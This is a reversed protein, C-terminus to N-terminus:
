RSNRDTKRRSKSRIGNRKGHHHHVARRGHSRELVTLGNTSAVYLSAGNPHFTLRMEGGIKGKESQLDYLVKGTSFDWLTVKGQGGNAGALIKGNSSIAVAYFQGPITRQLKGTATSWLKIGDECASAITKGNPSFATSMVVNRHGRLTIAGPGSIVKRLMVERKFGGGYLPSGSASALLKGDPSFQVSSVTARHGTLSTRERGTEVDWLKVEGPNGEFLLTEGGSALTRAM